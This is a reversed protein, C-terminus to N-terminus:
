RIEQKKRAPDNDGKLIEELITYALQKKNDQLNKQTFLELYIIDGKKCSKPLYCSPLTLHQKIDLIEICLVLEKNNVKDLTCKVQRDLLNKSM